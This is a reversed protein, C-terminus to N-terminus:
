EQADDTLVHRAVNGSRLKRIQTKVEDDTMFGDDPVRDYHVIEDLHRQLKARPAAEDAPYGIALMERVVLLEEYHM